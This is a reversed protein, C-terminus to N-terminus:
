NSLHHFIRITYQWSHKWCLWALLNNRVLLSLRHASNHARLCWVWYWSISVKFCISANWNAFWIIRSLYGLHSYRHHLGEIWFSRSSSHPLSAFTSKRVEISSISFILLPTSACLTPYMILDLVLRPSM